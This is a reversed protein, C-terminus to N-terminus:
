KKGAAKKQAKASGHLVTKVAEVQAVTAGPEFGAIQMAIRSLAYADYENDSRCIVGYRQTLHAIVATKDGAGKGTAFKKLTLPGVEHVPFGATILSWRLLGGYEVRDLTGPMNSGMSYGEICVVVPRRRDIIEMVPVILKSFRSIRDAVKTGQAPSSIVSMEVLTGTEDLVSVGTGSLSPDLGVVTRFPTALQIASTM